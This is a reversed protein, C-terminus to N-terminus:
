LPYHAGSESRLRSLNEASVHERLYKQYLQDLEDSYYQPTPRFNADDQWRAPPHLRDYYWADWLSNENVLEVIAVAPEEAYTVGTYPNRHTLLERAFEKQLDILQPDFYALAKAWGVNASDTVGDGPKYTRGVLLNIDIYIGNKKLEATWADFEDLKAPDLARTDPRDPAILGRPAAFDLFTLRVVNIGFRALTRAWRPADAKAPIQISGPTWDSVNVGWLRVRDNGEMILHDAKRGIFGHKGAPAELLFSLDLDSAPNQRHSISFPELPAQPVRDVALAASPGLAILALFLRKRPVM